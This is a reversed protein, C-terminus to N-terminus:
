QLQIKIILLILAILTSFTSGIIFSKAYYLKIQRFDNILIHNDTYYNLKEILVSEFDIKAEKEVMQCNFIELEIQYKRIEKTLALNRYDHGKFINNYSKALFFISILTLIISVGTFCTIIWFYTSNYCSSINTIIYSIIATLIAIVGVPINLANNLELRRALERDYISKYFELSDM